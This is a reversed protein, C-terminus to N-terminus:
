PQQLFNDISKALENLTRTCNANFTQQIEFQDSFASRVLKRVFRKIFNKMGFGQVPANLQLNWNLNIQRLAEELQEMHFEKTANQELNEKSLNTFAEIVASLEVNKSKDVNEKKASLMFTKMKYVVSDWNEPVYNAARNKLSEYASSDEKIKKVLQVFSEPSKPSFYACNEGGVERMVPVDSTLVVSGKQLAEVVPLGFGEDFTPFAVAFAHQYLYSITADNKREFFYLGNGNQPHTDIRKLVDDVGWGRRGAIVLNIGLNKLGKDYADILLKHNKRPEMTGVTLIYPASSAAKAANEDVSETSTGKNTSFDSGLWSIKINKCPLVLKKTFSNLIEVTTNASTIIMDAFKLCASLYAIFCPNEGGWFEPHTVPLVDYIYPVLLVGQKTFIPYVEDRQHCRIDWTSDIDFLIDGPKLEDLPLKEIISINKKDLSNDAYCALFDENSLISLFKEDQKFTFIVVNLSSDKLLRIVVEKVVRQIGSMFDTNYFSTLDVYIKM